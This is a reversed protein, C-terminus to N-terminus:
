AWALPRVVECSRARTVITGSSRRPSGRTIAMPRSASKPGPAALSCSWITPAGGQDILLAEPVRGGLTTAVRSRGLDYVVDIPLATCPRRQDRPASQFSEFDFTAAGWTRHVQPDTPDGGIGFGRRPGLDRPLEVLTRIPDVALRAPGRPDGLIDGVFLMDCLSKAPAFDTPYLVVGDNGLVDLCLAPQEASLTAVGRAVVDYAQKVVVTFIGTGDPWTVVAAGAPSRAAVLM